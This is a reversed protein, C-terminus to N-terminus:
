RNPHYGYPSKGNLHTYAMQIDATINVTCKRSSFCRESTRYPFCFPLATYNWERLSYHTLVASLHTKIDSRNNKRSNEASARFHPSHKLPMWRGLEPRHYVRFRPIGLDGWFLADKVVEDTRSLDSKVVKPNWSSLSYEMVEYRRESLANKMTIKCGKKPLFIQRESMAMKLAIKDGTKLFNWWIKVNRLFVYSNDSNIGKSKNLGVTCSCFDSFSCNHVNCNGGESM